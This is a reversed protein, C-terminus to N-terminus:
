SYTATYLSNFVIQVFLLKSKDNPVRTVESDWGSIFFLFKFINWMIRAYNEHENIEDIYFEYLIRLLSSFYYYDDNNDDDDEDDDDDDDGGDGNIKVIGAKEM